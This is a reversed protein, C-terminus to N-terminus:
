KASKGTFFKGAAGRGQLELKAEGGGSAAYFGRGVLDNPDRTAAVGDSDLRASVVLDQGLWWFDGRGNGELVGTGEATLDAASLTFAFPFTPEPFRGSLVPPPKGRTGDLIARPVNDPSNPRVTVYLASSPGTVATEGPRLAVTGRLLIPGPSVAAGGVEESASSALPAALAATLVFSIPAVLVSRRATSENGMKSGVAEIGDQAAAAGRYSRQALPSKGVAAAFGIASGRSTPIPIASSSLAVVHLSLTIFLLAYLLPSAAAFRCYKMTSVYPHM